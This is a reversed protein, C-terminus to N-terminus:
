ARLASTTQCNCIAMELVTMALCAPDTRASAECQMPVTQHTLSSSLSYRGPIEVIIIAIYAETTV